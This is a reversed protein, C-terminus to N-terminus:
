ARVIVKGAVTIILMERTGRRFLVEVGEILDVWRVDTFVITASASIADVRKITPWLTLMVTPPADTRQLMLQHVEGDPLQFPALGAEVGLLGAIEPICRQDFLIRSIRRNTVKPNPTPEDMPSTDMGGNPVLTKCVVPVFRVRGM